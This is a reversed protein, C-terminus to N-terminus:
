NCYLSGQTAVHWFVEAITCVTTVTVFFSVNYLLFPTLNVGSPFLLRNTCHLVYLHVSYMYIDVFM